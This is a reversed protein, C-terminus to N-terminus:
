EQSSVMYKASKAIHSDPIKSIDPYSQRTRKGDIKIMCYVNGEPACELYLMNDLQSSCSVIVKGEPTALIDLPLDVVEFFRYILQEVNNLLSDTPRIDDPEYQEEINHLQSFASNLYKRAKLSINHLSSM